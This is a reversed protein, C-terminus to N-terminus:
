GISIPRLAPLPMALLMLATCPSMLSARVNLPPLLRCKLPLRRGPCRAATWSKSAATCSGAAPRQTLNVARGLLPTSARSSSVNAAAAPPWPLLLLLALLALLM